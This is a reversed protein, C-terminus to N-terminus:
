FDRRGADEIQGTEYNIVCRHESSENSAALVSAFRSKFDPGLKEIEMQEQLAFDLLRKANIDLPSYAAEFYEPSLLTKDTLLSLDPLTTGAEFLQEDFCKKMTIFLSSDAEDVHEDWNDCLVCRRWIMAILFMYKEYNVYNKNLSLIKAAKYFGSRDDLLTFLEVVQALELKRDGDIRRKLEDFLQKVASVQFKENLKVGQEIMATLDTQGDIVDLEAQIKMLRDIDLANGNALNCLKAISLMTQEANVSRSTDHQDITIETLVRSAENYKEDLVKCMWGYEGFQPNQDFFQRLYQHQTPFREYLDPLRGHAICNSFVEAAFNYEFKEFYQRYLDDSEERPLTSLTAALSSLDGYFETIELSELTKGVDCLKQNWLLRNDQYLTCVKTAEHTYAQREVDQLWLSAQNCSYYLIKVLSLLQEEYHPYTESTPYDNLIKFFENLVYPINHQLYWPTLRGLEYTSMEFKSFRYNEEGEQFSGKLLCSTILDLCPTLLEPSATALLTALMVHLFKSLVLPFQNFKSKFVTEEDLKSDTLMNHWYEALLQSGKISSLFYKAANLIEFNEVLQIRVAPSIKNLFNFKTFELLSRYLDVRLSVHREMSQLTPPIYNSKSLLIEDSSAMLDEEIEERELSIKPPLNFDIPTGNLNSFYVAQDIHSKIFRSEHLDINNSNRSATIMLVGMKKSMLYVSDSDMGYGFIETDDRFSIIDEWKRKLSYSQDLTSSVQTLVVCNEFVTYVSTVPASTSDADVPILLKPFATERSATTYTNLRYTSFIMFGNTREDLKITTLIYYCAGDYDTISSLIMHASNDESLPHSDLLTLTGYACPYLDKLSELIQEYVNLEIKKYCNAVASINWVMFDGNSTLVSVSREGKGLIPGMKISVIKKTKQSSFFLAFHSKIMQLKLNLRPKGMFDRVTVFFLRGRTTSVLIGAPEANVVDAVYESDKLSLELEHCKTRSIRSSLNNIADVDEYFQILGSKRNVICIGCNQRSSANTPGSTASSPSDKGRGDTSEDLAAPWTVIVKPTCSLSIHDEHLPIHTVVPNLQTTAFDWMYLTDSDNVVANHSFTDVYGDVSSINQLQRPLEAPLKEVTYKANETLVVKNTFNSTVSHEVHSTSEFQEAFSQTINANSEADSFVHLEQRLQFLPKESM